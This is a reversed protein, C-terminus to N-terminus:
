ENDAEKIGKLGNHAIWAAVKETSGWAATPMEEWMFVAWERMYHTNDTDAKLFSEALKNELVATAFGGPPIGQEVYRRMGDQMHEPLMEYNLM